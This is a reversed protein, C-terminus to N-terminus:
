CAAAPDAVARAARPFGDAALGPILDALAQDPCQGGLFAPVAEAPIGNKEMERLYTSKGGLVKIKDKTVPHIIPSVVAYASRFVFPANVIFLKWLTEPFYDNAGGVIAKTMERVASRTLLSSISIESLDLVYVQKYRRLGRKETARTQLARIAEMVKCRIQKAEDPSLPHDCVAGIDGLQEAWVQHGYLDLGGVRSNM